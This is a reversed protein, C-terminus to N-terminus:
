WAAFRHFAARTNAIRAVFHILEFADIPFHLQRLDAPLAQCSGQGRRVQVM